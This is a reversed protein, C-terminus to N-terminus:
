ARLWPLFNALLRVYLSPIHTGQAAPPKQHPSQHRLISSLCLSLSSLLVITSRTYEGYRCYHMKDYGLFNHDKSPCSLLQCQALLKISIYPIAPTQNQDSM